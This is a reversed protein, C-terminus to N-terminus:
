AAKKPPSDLRENIKRRLVERWGDIHPVRDFERQARALLETRSLQSLTQWDDGMIYAANGYEINEFVVVNDSFQAGFYRQFGSTGLVFNRPKLKALFDYRETLRVKAETSTSKPGLIIAINSDREGPPLIEWAV